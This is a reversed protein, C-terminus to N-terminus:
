GPRELDGLRRLLRDLELRLDAIARRRDAAVEEAAGAAAASPAAPAGPAWAPWSGMGGAGPWASDLAPWALGPGAAGAAQWLAGLWGGLAQEHLRIMQHLLWAPVLRLKGPDHEILALALTQNTIDEGTSADIIRVFLEAGAPLPPTTFATVTKGGAAIGVQAAAGAPLDVGSAGTDAFRALGEIEANAPDDNGVDIDVTPADFSAHVIRVRANGSAPAGFGEELALVRFGDEDKSSGIDGAAIATYKENAALSLEPTTFVPAGSAPSGAARIDIELKGPPLELYDTAKGYALNTVIPTSGGAPYLDAAPASSSAHVVRLKAMQTGGDGGGTGAMGAMGGTGGTGGTGGVSGGSGGSGGNGGGGDDDDGCGALALASAALIASLIFINSIFGQNKRARSLM